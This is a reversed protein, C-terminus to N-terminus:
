TCSCTTEPGPGKGRDSCAERKLEYCMNRCGGPDIQSHCRVLCKSCSSRIDAATGAPWAFGVLLFLIAAKM